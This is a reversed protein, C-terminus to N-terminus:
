ASLVRRGEDIDRRIQAVLEDPGSFRQEARLRAVFGVAVGAGYLDLQADLLHSEITVREGGFTPRTGINVVSAYEKGDVETYAAYVGNAPIQMRDEVAVNATPIGITRGRMDGRVVVGDLWYPRGLGEVAWRVDGTALHERIQTSSVVRDDLALLGVGEATFGRMVGLDNLTVVDGSARHGFRFNTGVVVKRTAIAEVLVHDVFEEATRESLELTFPLVVVLDLGQAVLTRIRRDLRMLYKPQSGPALVEMPHRDFTVAVSRIGQDRAERVARGIITQHGRHVGDFFGITVVSPRPPVDALDRVVDDANM